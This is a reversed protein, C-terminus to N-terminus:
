RGYAVRPPPTAPPTQARRPRAPIRAAASTRTPEPPLGDLKRRAAIWRQGSRFLDDPHMGLLDAIVGRAEAWHGGVVFFAVAHDYLISNVPQDEVDEKAQTVVQVWLARCPQAMDYFSHSM